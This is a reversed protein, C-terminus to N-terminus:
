TLTTLTNCNDGTYGTFCQCLGTGYDCKGRRGCEYSNYDALQVTSINSPARGYRTEVNLGDVRPTCGAGCEFDEVIILNQPGQVAAGTFTVNVVVEGEFNGYQSARVTVGDIVRNPLSMLALQIDHVFDNLDSPDFVVPITTFTENIRSKFTMAFTKSQLGSIFDAAQFRLEQVHYKLSVLLDDRVDLVDTGHPCLRKSCDVDGYTADCVCGRIKRNDWNRYPFTKAEDSFGQKTFDNWSSAFWMDEIYECTGHGSCDNPCSTRQCAKGDYGDFCACEGIERNCIGRNSCEAYRHYEGKIDPSDVWALEYPCIRDSCDGSDHSLGVGWNDYCKCVDDTMCTGHGSCNNDCAALAQSFLFILAFIRVYLM